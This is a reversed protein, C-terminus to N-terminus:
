GGSDRRRRLWDRVAPRRVLWVGFWVVSEAMRVMLPIGILIPLLSAVGFTAFAPADPIDLKLNQRAAIALWRVLAFYGSVFVTLFLLSGVTFQGLRGDDRLAWLTAWALALGSAAAAGAVVAPFVIWFATGTLAVIALSLAALYALGVLFSFWL